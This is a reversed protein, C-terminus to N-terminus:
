RGRIFNVYDQAVRDWPRYANPKTEPPAKAFQAILDELEKQNDTAFYSAFHSAIEQFPRINSLIPHTGLHLANLVPIGFGEYESASIFAEASAIEGFIYEDTVDTAFKVRDPFRVILKTLREDAPEGGVVSLSIGAHVSLQSEFAAAVMDFNKYGSRTGVHIFKGRIRDPRHRFTEHGHFIIADRRGKIQPYLAVARARTFGSIYVVDSASEISQIKRQVVGATSPKQTLRPLDEHAFDHIVVLYRACDLFINEGYYTNIVAVPLRGPIRNKVLARRREASTPNSYHANDTPPIESIIKIVSDNELLGSEKLHINKLHGPYLFLCVEFAQLFAEAALIKAWIQSVGGKQQLSFARGDVLLLIAKGM